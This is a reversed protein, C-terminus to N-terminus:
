GPAFEIEVGPRQRANTWLVVTSRTVTWVSPPSVLFRIDYTDSRRVGEVTAAHIEAALVPESFEIREVRLDDDRLLGTLRVTYKRTTSPASRVRVAEPFIMYEPVAELWARLLVPNEGRSNSIFPVAFRIPGSYDSPCRITVAFERSAGAPIEDLDPGPVVCPTLESPEVAPIGAKGILPVSGLNNLEFTVSRTEGCHVRLPFRKNAGGPLTRELLWLWAGEPPRAQTDPDRHLVLAPVAGGAHIHQDPHWPSSWGWPPDYCALKGDLGKHAYIFHNGQVWLIAPLYDNDLLDTQSLRFGHAKMGMAAAAAKLDLMSLTASSACAAFVEEPTHPTGFDLAAEYLCWQGCTSRSPGSPLHGPMREDAPASWASVVAVVVVLSAPQLCDLWRGAAAASRVDCASSPGTM